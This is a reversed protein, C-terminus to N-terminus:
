CSNLEPASDELKSIPTALTHGCCTHNARTKKKTNNNLQGLSTRTSLAVCFGYTHSERHSANVGSICGDLLKKGVICGNKDITRRRRDRRTGFVSRSHIKLIDLWTKTTRYLKTSLMRKDAEVAM